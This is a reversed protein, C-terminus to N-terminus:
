KNKINYKLSTSVYESHPNEWMLCFYEQEDSYYQLEEPHLVGKWDSINDKSIPYFIGEESHYHINFKVPKSAKFSYDLIQNPFLEVCEEYSRHPDITIEMKEKMTSDIKTEVTKKVNLSACGGIVLLISSYFLTIQFFKMM